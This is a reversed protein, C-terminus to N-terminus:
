AAFEDAPAPEVTWAVESDKLVHVHVPSGFTHGAGRVVSEIAEAENTAEVLMPQMFLHPVNVIFETM